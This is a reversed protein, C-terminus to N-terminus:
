SRWSARDSLAGVAAVQDEQRTKIEAAYKVNVGDEPVDIPTVTFVRADEHSGASVHILDVLGDIAEAIRCGYDIGYGGEYVESGSIRMEIPFDPGVADRVAKIIELPFRMRNEFSGGYEDTRHNLTPSMFQHILVTRATCCM